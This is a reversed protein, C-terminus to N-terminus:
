PRARLQCIVSQIIIGLKGWCATNLLEKWPNHSGQLRGLYGWVTQIPPRERRLSWSSHVSCVLSHAHTHSCLPPDSSGSGDPSCDPGWHCSRCGHTHGLPTPASPTSVLWEGDKPSMLMWVRGSSRPKRCNIFWWTDSNTSGVGFTSNYHDLSDM